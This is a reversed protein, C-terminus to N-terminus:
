GPPDAQEVEHLRVLCVDLPSQKAFRFRLYNCGIPEDFKLCAEGCSCRNWALLRACQPPRPKQKPRSVEISALAKAAAKPPAAFPRATNERQVVINEVSFQSSRALAQLEVFEENSFRCDSLRTPRQEPRDTALAQRLDEIEGDLADIRHQAAAEADICVHFM